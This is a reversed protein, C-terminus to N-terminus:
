IEEFNLNKLQLYFSNSFENLSTFNLRDGFPKLEKFRNQYPTIATDIKSIITKKSFSNNEEDYLVEYGLAKFYNPNQIQILTHLLSKMVPHIGYNYLIYFAIYKYITPIIQNYRNNKYWRIKILSENIFNNIEEQPIKETPNFTYKADYFKTCFDEFNIEQLESVYIKLEEIKAEATNNEDSFYEQIKKSLKQYIEYKPVILYDIKFLLNLYSFAKMGIIDNTPFTTLRSNLQEIWIQLFEYKIKLDNVDIPEIHAIDELIIEPFEYKIYEKDFDANLAIERIPFFIKQPNMTINDQYIKLKILDDEVFYRSYTLQYNRELIYRKLAVHALSAKTLITQAYLHEKTVYGILRSTGQFIEFNLKGESKSIVINHNSKDYCFNELTQFFYEYASLIDKNEFAEYSKYFLEDENQPVNANTGRGFPHHQRTKTEFFNFWSLDIGM